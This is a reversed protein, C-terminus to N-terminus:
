KITRSGSFRPMYSQAFTSSYGTDPSECVLRFIPSYQRISLHSSSCVRRWCPVRRTLSSIIYSEGAVAARTDQGAHSCCRILKVNSAWLTQSLCHQIGITIGGRHTSARQLQKDLAGRSNQVYPYGDPPDILLM